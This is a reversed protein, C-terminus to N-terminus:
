TYREVKEESRAEQEGFGIITSLDRMPHRSSMLTTWQTRRPRAGGDAQPGGSIM